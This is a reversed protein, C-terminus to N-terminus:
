SFDQLSSSVQQWEAELLFGDALAPTFFGWIRLDVVFVDIIIIIIYM